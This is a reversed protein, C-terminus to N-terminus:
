RDLLSMLYVYKDLDTTLRKLNALVLQEQQQVTHVVPPMLGHIGLTQREQITFALGKKKVLIIIIEM